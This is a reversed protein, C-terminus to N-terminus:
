QTAQPLELRDLARQAAAKIATTPASGWFVRVLVTYRKTPGFGYLEWAGGAIGAGDCCPFRFAQALSLHPSLQRGHPPWGTPDAPQISVWVVIDGRHLHRLTANPPNSRDCDPCAINATWAVSVPYKRPESGATLFYTGSSGVHWGPPPSTFKLPALWPLAVAAIVVAL